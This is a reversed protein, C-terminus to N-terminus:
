KIDKENVYIIGDFGEAFTPEQYSTNLNEWVGEWVTKNYNDHPNTMRRKIAEKQSLYPFILAIIDYNYKHALKIYNERVRKSMNTEDVVIEYIDEKFLEEVALNALQKIVRETREEFIYVGGGVMYRMADRSVVTSGKLHKKIYTSKGSGINGVMLIIHKKM